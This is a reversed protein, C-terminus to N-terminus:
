WPFWHLSSNPCDRVGPGLPNFSALSGIIYFCPTPDIGPADRKLVEIRSTTPSVSNFDLLTSIHLPSRHIGGAHEGAPLSDIADGFQLSVHTLLSTFLGGVGQHTM